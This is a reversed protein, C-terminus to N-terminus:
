IHLYLRFNRWMLFIILLVGIIMPPYVLIFSTGILEHLMWFINMSIWSTLIANELREAKHKILVYISILITPVIMVIAMTSFKLCWFMDKLLWSVIHFRNSTDDLM